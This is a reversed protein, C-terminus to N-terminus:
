AIQFVGMMAQLSAAQERLATTAAAAEEVLAANQQTSQDMESVTQSVQAIGTSQERSSEVIGGM